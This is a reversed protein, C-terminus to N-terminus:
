QNKYSEEKPKRFKEHCGGCSDGLAKVAGGTAAPDGGQAAAALNQAAKEYDAVAKEFKPWDSWIEPKADTKGAAVKQEFAPAMLKAALAM